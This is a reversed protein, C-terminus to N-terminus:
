QDARDVPQSRAGLGALTVDVLRVVAEESPLNAAAGLAHVCYQAMEESVLDDQLQGAEVAAALVEVFLGVLEQQAHAVHDDRHLLASLERTGHRERHFAIMAYGYLV